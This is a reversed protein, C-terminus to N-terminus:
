VKTLFEKSRLWIQSKVTYSLNKYVNNNILLLSLAYV